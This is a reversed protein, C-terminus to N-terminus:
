AAFGCAFREVLDHCERYSVTNGVFYLAPRRPFRRASRSLMDVLTESCLPLERPVGEPYHVWSQEPM